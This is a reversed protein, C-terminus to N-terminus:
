FNLYLDLYNKIEDELSPVERIKSTREQKLNILDLIQKCWKKYNLDLVTVNELNLNSNPVNPSIITPCNNAMAEYLAFGASEFLSPFIFLDLANYIENINSVEGIFHVNNIGNKQCYKQLKENNYKGFLFLQINTNNLRKILNCSFIQNKAKSIRGVQGIIFQDDAVNLQNRIEGRKRKDFEFSKPNIGLEIYKCNKTTGYLYKAVMENNAVKFGLNKYFLRIFKHFLKNIFNNTNTAHGVIVTKIKSKKVAHLLLFNRYSMLNVQCFDGEKRNKLVDKIAKCYKIPHKKRSPVITYECKYENLFQEKYAFDKYQAIIHFKLEKTNSVIGKILNLAYNEMGGRNNDIGYYYITKMFEKLKVKM